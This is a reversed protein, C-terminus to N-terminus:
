PLAVFTFTEWQAAATRNCNVVDNGCSEAVLYYGLYSRFAVKDGNVIPGIGGNNKKEITFTEWEAAGARDAVVGAGGGGLAAIYMGNHTQINVTDGHMLSGGNRDVITFSEWPGIATRNANVAGGGAWEAVMYYGCYSQLAARPSFIDGSLTATARFAVGDRIHDNPDASNFTGIIWFDFEHGVNRSQASTFAFEYGDLGSPKFSPYGPQKLYGLDIEEDVKTFRTDLNPTSWLELVKKYYPPTPTDKIGITVGIYRFASSTPSTYVRAIAGQKVGGAVSNMIFAPNLKGPGHVLDLHGDGPTNKWTISPSGPIDAAIQWQGYGWPQTQDVPARLLTMWDTMLDNAVIYFYGNDIFLQTMMLGLGCTSEEKKSRFLVGPQITWNQGDTSRAWLVRWNDSATWGGNQPNNVTQNFAMYWTGNYYVVKSNAAGAAFYGPNSDDWTCNTSLVPPTPVPIAANVKRYDAVLKFDPTGTYPHQAPWRYPWAGTTGPTAFLPFQPISATGGSARNYNWWGSTNNKSIWWMGTADGCNLGRDRPDLAPSCPNQAPQGPCDTGCFGWNLQFDWMDTGTSKWARRHQTGGFFYYNNNGTEAVSLGGTMALRFNTDVKRTPSDIQTVRLKMKLPAASAPLATLLAFLGMLMKQPLHM